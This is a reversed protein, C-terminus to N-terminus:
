SNGIQPTADAVGGDGGSRFAALEVSLSRLAELPVDGPLAVLGEVLGDMDRGSLWDALRSRQAALAAVPAHQWAALASVTMPRLAAAEVRTPVELCAEDVFGVNTGGNRVQLPVPDAEGGALGVVLAGLTHRTNPYSYPTAEPHVRTGDPEDIMRGTELARRLAEARLGRKSVGEPLCTRAWRENRVPLEDTWAVRLPWHHYPSTRLCGTSEFLEVFWTAHPDWDDRSVREPIRLRLLQDGEGGGVTLRSVWGVHNVGIHEVHIDAEDVGLYYSLWGVLGPVEVCLGVSTIGFAREFAAACVDTPNVLTAFVARPCNEKMDRGLRALEPWLAAAEVAIAASSEDPAIGRPELLRKRLPMVRDRLGASFVVLDAGGLADAREPVVRSTLALGAQKATIGAYRAMDAARKANPDILALEIRRGLRRLAEAREALGHLFTVVFRSGGGVYSIKFADPM